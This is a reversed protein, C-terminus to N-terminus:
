DGLNFLVDRANYLYFPFYLDNHNFESCTYYFNNESVDLGYSFTDTQESFYKMQTRMGPADNKGGSAAFIFFPLDPHSDIAERIYQFAEENTWVTSLLAGEARCEASMPMFWRFYELNNHFMYWTCVSGRSYGAWARHDRTAKIGEASFDECYVNFQSEVAPILDEVVEKYYNGPIGEYRGDGAPNDGPTVYKNEDYELYFTPCVIICPEMVQKDPDFMNDFLNMVNASKIVHDFFENPSGQHGHQFYIVNYKKDKDNADYGYPLYVRAFKDYTVGNEYVDTTYRIVVDTGKHEPEHTNYADPLLTFELPFDLVDTTTITTFTTFDPGEPAQTEPPVETEPTKTEHTVTEPVPTETAQEGQNRNAGCAVLLGTCMVLIILVSLIKKMRM